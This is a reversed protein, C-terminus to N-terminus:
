PLVERIAAMLMWSAVFIGVARPFLQGAIHQLAPM